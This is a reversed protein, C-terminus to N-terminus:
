LTPKSPRLSMVDPEFGPQLVPPNEATGPHSGTRGALKTDVIKATQQGRAGYTVPRPVGSKLCKCYM